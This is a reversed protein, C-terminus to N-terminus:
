SSKSVYDLVSWGTAIVNCSPHAARFNYLEKEPIQNNRVILWKLNKLNELPQLSTIRNNSCDLYELKTLYKVAHLSSISNRSIDLSVLNTLFKITELKNSTLNTAHLDLYTLMTLNEIPRTNQLERNSRLGLHTLQSFNKLFEASRLEGGYIFLYWLKKNQIVNEMSISKKQKNLWFNTCIFVELNSCFRVLELKESEKHEQYFGLWLQKINWGNKFIESAIEEKDWKYDELMKSKYYTWPSQHIFLDEHLMTFDFIQTLDIGAQNLKLNINMLHASFPSVNIQKRSKSNENLPM